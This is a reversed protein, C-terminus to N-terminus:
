KADKRREAWDKAAQKLDYGEKSLYNNVRGKYRGFIETKEEASGAYVARDRAERLMDFVVKKQEATLKPLMQLYGDYTVQLKHYTMKDKVTEVQEPSLDKGLAALFRENLSASAAETSAREARVRGAKEVGGRAEIERVRADRANHLVHLGRYQGVIATRVRDAAAPDDLQLEDLVDAARKEIARTYSADDAKTEPAQFALCAVSALLWTLM